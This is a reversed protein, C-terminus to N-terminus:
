LDYGNAPGHVMARSPNLAIRRTAHSHVGVSKYHIMEQSFCTMEHKRMGGNVCWDPLSL